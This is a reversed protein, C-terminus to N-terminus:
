AKWDKYIKYAIVGVWALGFFFGFLAQHSNYFPELHSFYFKVLHESWLNKLNGAVPESFQPIYTLSYFYGYIAAWAILNVSTKTEGSPTERWSWDAPRGFAKRGIDDFSDAFANGGSLVLGFLIFVFSFLVALFIGSSVVLWDLHLLSNSIRSFKLWLLESNKFAIIFAIFGAVSLLSKILFPIARAALRERIKAVTRPGPARSRIRPRQKGLYISVCAWVLSALFIGMGISM